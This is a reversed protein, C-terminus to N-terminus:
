PFYYFYKVIQFALTFIDLHPFQLKITQKIVIPHYKKIIIIICYESNLIFFIAM